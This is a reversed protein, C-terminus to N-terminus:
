VFMDRVGQVMQIVNDSEEYDKHSLEVEKKLGM